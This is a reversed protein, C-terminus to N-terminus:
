EFWSIFLGEWPQLWVTMTVLLSRDHQSVWTGESTCKSCVVDTSEQMRDEKSLARKKCTNIISFFYDTACKMFAFEMFVLNIELRLLQIILIPHDRKRFLCHNWTVTIGWFIPCCPWNCSQLMRSSSWSWFM